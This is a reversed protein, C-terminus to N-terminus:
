STRNECIKKLHFLWPWPYFQNTCYQSLIRKIIGAFKAISIQYFSQQVMRAQLIDVFSYNGKGRGRGEGIGQEGDEERGQTRMRVFIPPLNQHSITKWNLYILWNSSYLFELSISPHYNAQSHLRLRLRSGLVGCLQKRM